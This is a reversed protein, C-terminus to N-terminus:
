GHTTMTPKGTRLIDPMLTAFAQVKPDSKGVEAAVARVRRALRGTQDARIAKVLGRWAAIGGRVLVDEIAAKTLERGATETLHRHAMLPAALLPPRAELVLGLAECIRAVKAYGLEALKGTELAALTSRGVGAKAALQHLTFGQSRRQEAIRQGVMQLNM